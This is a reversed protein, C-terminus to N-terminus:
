APSSTRDEAETRAPRAAPALGATLRRAYAILLPEWAHLGALRLIEIARDLDEPIHTHGNPNEHSVTAPTSNRIPRGPEISRAHTSTHEDTPDHVISRIWNGCPLPPKM